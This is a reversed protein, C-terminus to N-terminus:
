DFDTGNPLYDTRPDNVAWIWMVTALKAFHKSTTFFQEQIRLAFFSFNSMELHFAKLLM